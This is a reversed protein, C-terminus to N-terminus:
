FYKEFKGSNKQLLNDIRFKSRNGFFVHTSAFRCAPSSYFYEMAKETKPARLLQQIKLSGCVTM